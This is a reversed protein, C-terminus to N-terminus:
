RAGLLTRHHGWINPLRQQQDGGTGDDRESSCRKELQDAPLLGGRKVTLAARIRTLLSISIGRRQLHPPDVIGENVNAFAAPHRQRIPREVHILHIVQDRKNPASERQYRIDLDTIRQSVCQSNESIPLHVAYNILVPRTPRVSGRKDNSCVDTAVGQRRNMQLGKRIKPQLVTRASPGCGRASLARGYRIPTLAIM